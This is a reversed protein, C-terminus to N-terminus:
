VNEKGSKILKVKLPKHEEGEDSHISSGSDWDEEEAQKLAEELKPDHIPEVSSYDKSEDVLRQQKAIKSSVVSSQPSIINDVSEETM